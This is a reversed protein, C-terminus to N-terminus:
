KSASEFAQTAVPENLRIHSDQRVPVSCLRIGYSLFSSETKPKKFSSVVAKKGVTLGYGYDHAPAGRHRRESADIRLYGLFAASRSPLYHGAQNDFM